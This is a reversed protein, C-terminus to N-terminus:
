KKESKDVKESIDVKLFVEGPPLKPVIEYIDVKSYLNKLSLLTLLILLLNYM